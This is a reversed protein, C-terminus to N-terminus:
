LPEVQVVTGPTLGYVEGFTPELSVALDDSGGLVSTLAGVLARVAAWQTTSMPEGDGLQAIRIQIDPHGDPGLAQGRWLASSECRGCEDVTFHVDHAAAHATLFRDSGPAVAYSLLEVGAWRGPIPTTDKTVATHAASVLEDISIVSDSSGTSPDIWGLLTATGTMSVALVGLTRLMRTSHDM